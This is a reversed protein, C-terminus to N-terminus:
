PSPSPMVAETISLRSIMLLALVPSPSVVSVLVRVLPLPVRSLSPNVTALSAGDFPVSAM